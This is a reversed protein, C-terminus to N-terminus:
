SKGDPEFENCGFYGRPYVYCYDDYGVGATVDGGAEASASISGSNDWPGCESYRYENETGEDEVTETCTNNYLNAGNLLTKNANYKSNDSYGEICFPTGEKVGCAYANTVENNSNLKM